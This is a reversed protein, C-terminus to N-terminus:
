KLTVIQSYRETKETGRVVYVAYKGNPVENPIPFSPFTLFNDFIGYFDGSYPLAYEARTDQNVLIMEYHDPFAGWAQTYALIPEKRNIESTSPYYPLNNLLPTNFYSRLSLQTVIRLIPQTNSKRIYFHDDGSYKDLWMREEFPKQEKGNLLYTIKYNGLGIADPLYGSLTGPKEYKLPIRQPVVFDNQIIAEYKGTPSLNFATIAFYRHHALMQWSGRKFQITGPKVIVQRSILEAQTGWVFEATYEGPSISPPLEIILEDGAHAYNAAAYVEAAIQGTAIDTFRIFPDYVMKGSDNVTARTGKLHFSTSITVEPGIALAKNQAAGNLQIAKHPIVIVNFTRRERTTSELELRIDQGEYSVGVLLPSQSSYGTGFVIEPKIYDGKTYHEPLRVVIIDEEVTINRSDIGPVTFELVDIIKTEQPPVLPDKETKCQWFLFAVSMILYFTLRM